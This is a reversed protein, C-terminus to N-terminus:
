EESIQEEINNNSLSYLRGMFDGFNEGRIEISKEPEPIEMDLKEDCDINEMSLETYGESEDAIDQRPNFGERMVMWGSAGYGSENSFDDADSCSFTVEKAAIGIMTDCSHSGINDAILIKGSIGNGGCPRGSGAFLNRQIIGSAGADVLVGAIREAGLGDPGDNGEPTGCDVCTNNEIILNEAAQLLPVQSVGCAHIAHNGCRVICNNVVTHDSGHISLGCACDLLRNAEITSGRGAGIKISNKRSRLVVNGRVITDGCKILIGELGSEEILNYEVIHGCQGVDRDGSGILIGYDYNVFHNKRVVYDTLPVGEEPDGGGVMLGITATAAASKVPSTASREFLCNEVVNCSGGAGGFFLTCSASGRTGCNIFQMDAFRNRLCVGMVSVAGHPSDRFTFGSVILDCIDYFFWCAGRITVGGNAEAAIRIPSHMTGSIDFTVDHSYEGNKLVIVTGPKTIALANEISCFPSDFTGEGRGGSDACVWLVSPDYRDFM